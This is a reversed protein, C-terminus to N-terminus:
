SWGLEFLGYELGCGQEEFLAFGGAGLDAFDSVASGHGGVCDEFM